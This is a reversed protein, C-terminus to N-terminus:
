LLPMGLLPRPMSCGRAKKGKNVRTRPLLIRLPECLEPGVGLPISIYLVPLHDNDM